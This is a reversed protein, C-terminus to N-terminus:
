RQHTHGCPSKNLGKHTGPGTSPKLSCPHRIDLGVEPSIRARHALCGPLLRTVPFCTSHRELSVCELQTAQRGRPVTLQLFTVTSLFCKERPALRGRKRAQSILSM